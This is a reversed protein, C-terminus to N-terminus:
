RLGPFPPGTLYLDTRIVRGVWMRSHPVEEREKVFHAFEGRRVWVARLNADDVAVRWWDRVCAWGEPSLEQNELMSQVPAGLAAAMWRVAPRIAERAARAAAEDSHAATALLAEGAAAEGADLRRAAEAVAGMDLPGATTASEGAASDSFRLRAADCDASSLYFCYNPDSLPRPFTFVLRAVGEPTAEAIEVDFADTHFRQGTEFRHDERRFGEGLFRGLLRSFFYPRGISVSLRHSDLADVTVPREIVFPDPAFTLVHARVERFARGFEQDLAPKAYINIFPLNVFFVDRTAAAPPDAAVWATFYREAAITGTWQWRSFMSLLSMGGVFVVLVFGRVLRLGLGAGRAGLGATALAVSASFGVGCMYGSHPTAIVPVVPLVSLLIWVPWVWCGRFRRAALWYAAALFVLIGLMLLCDGPVELWPNFRGTPGIMMPALWVSTVLYHLLKASAWAAYELWAGAPRRVYVDPMAQTIAAVRWIVFALGIMGFAVFAGRRRWVRGWGGELWELMLLIAPLIVANEKTLLALTWLLLSGLLSPWRWTPGRGQPSEGAGPGAPRFLCLGSARIYLLLAALMLATQIVCNQSSSWAVTVVANPYVAFLLAGILSWFADRTLLACLRWVMFVSALHLLLSFGHLFAPDDGGLVHYVLKMALIFAPRGYEWRVPEDQWWFHMWQAPEIALTRLLESLSWGNERLGRQHWYDDLVAGDWLSWLHVSLAAGILLLAGSLLAVFRPSGDRAVGVASEESRTEGSKRGSNSVPQSM